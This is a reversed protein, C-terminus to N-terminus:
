GKVEIRVSLLKDGPYSPNKTPDRLKIQQLVDMGEVLQGFVSYQGDLGPQATFCIFFQSGNTDPLATRAMSLAGAVHKHSTIENAFTYGPGGSGTGTPDGGQAMFNAIVRHFTTNDYYGQTALFVFNNVTHPVDKAFLDFVMEGHETEMIARYQKGTDITMKPPENWQLVRDGKTETPLQVWEDGSGSSSCSVCMLGVTMIVLVAPLGLLVLKRM